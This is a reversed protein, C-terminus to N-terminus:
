PRRRQASPLLVSIADAFAEATADWSLPRSQDLARQSFLDFSHFISCTAAVLADPRNRVVFGTSKDNVADCLGPVNYVVAPTGHRAAETVVLGWGERVSTMWLLSAARLLRRREDDDVRGHFVVVDTLALKAVRRELSKRYYAPGTGVVRLRGRWGVNRLLAAAEISEEVRKSPTLRGVVVIDRPVSKVPVEVDPPEDVAMPLIQIPGTLGIARLSRASSASITILPSKRYPRLYIPEAAYGLRGMLGGEYLWVERALQQFWAISPAAYWPTLFPITNIQDIVIDHERRRAYRAFAHAHVTASSGARLFHIGNRIEAAKAGNYHSSFWDITWGRAALRELVRLTVLEAGGSRPHWPDRWNLLLLRRPFAIVAFLKRSARHKGGTYCPRSEWDAAPKARIPDGPNESGASSTSFAL